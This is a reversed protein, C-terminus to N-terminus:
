NFTKNFNGYKTTIRGSFKIFYLIVYGFKLPDVFQRSKTLELKKRMKKRKIFLIENMIEAFKKLYYELLRYFYM